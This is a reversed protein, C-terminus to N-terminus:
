EIAVRIGASFATLLLRRIRLNRQEKNENVQKEKTKIM